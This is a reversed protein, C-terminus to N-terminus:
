KVAAKVANIDKGAQELIKLAYEINHAGRSKDRVLLSLNGRATDLRAKLEASLTGPKEKLAASIVKMDAQLADMNQTYSAQWQQLRAGRDKKGANKHCSTCTDARKEALDLADPRIVKMLHNAETMHCQVCSIESHMGKTEDIGKAGKGKLIGEQSHCSSCLKEPAMVLQHPQESNHPDHCAVCSLTTFTEKRSIDVKDGNRKAAFGEASHCGYCDAAARDNGSILSLAKAHPSAAWMNYNRLHNATVDSDPPTKSPDVPTLQIGSTESLKMGHKFGVVWKTGDSMLKGGTKVDNGGHCQGCLDADKSSVIKTKDGKALVHERGPGHCAECGIGPEGWTLNPTNMNTTHCGACQSSWDLKFNSPKYAKAEKDYIVGLTMYHETVPDRALLFSNAVMYEAKRLEPQLNVPAKSIELPLSTSNILPIVMTAHNSPKWQSYKGSHCGLCTQSGIYEPIGQNGEAHLIGIALLYSIIASLLAVRHPDSYM